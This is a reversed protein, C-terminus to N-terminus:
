FGPPRMDSPIPRSFGLFKRWLPPVGIIYFMARIDESSIAIGEAIDVVALIDGEVLTDLIMSLTTMERLLRRSGLCPAIIQLYYRHFIKFSQLNEGTPDALNQRAEKASARCLYGPLRKALTRLRHESGLGEQSSLSSTADGFKSLQFQQREKQSQNQDAEQVSSGISEWRLEVQRGGVNEEGKTERQIDGGSPEAGVPSRAGQSPTPTPRKGTPGRERGKSGCM